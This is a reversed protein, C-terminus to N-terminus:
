TDSEGRKTRKLYNIYGNILKLCGDYRSKFSKLEESTIYNEDYATILHEMSEELSGRAIRCFRVTDQYYFRGHGEALNATVSRSADLIQSRLLYKEESPFHTKVVASMEKRFARCKKYVDLDTFSSAM